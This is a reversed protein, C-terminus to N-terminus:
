RVSAARKRSIERSAATLEITERANERLVIRKALDFGRYFQPYEALGKDLGEWAAIFYSGPPVRSFAFSGDSESETTASFGNSTETSWITIPAAIKSGMADRVVGSVEAAGRAVTVDFKGGALTLTMPRHTVDEGNLRISKVFYQDSMEKLEVRFIGVPVAGKETQIVGEDDVSLFGGWWDSIVSALSLRFANSSARLDDPFRGQEDHVTGTFIEFREKLTVSVSELDHTFSLPQHAFAGRLAPSGEPKFNATGTIMYDGARLGNCEFSGDPDIRLSCGAPTENEAFRIQQYIGLQPHTIADFNVIRGRVRYTRDEQLRIRLGNIEAAAPVELLTASNIDKSEGYFTRVSIIDKPQEIAPSTPANISASIYYHGPLIGGLVFTGDARVPAIQRQEYRRYGGRFVPEWIGVWANAPTEGEPDTVFGRLIAQPTLELVIDNIPSGGLELTIGSGDGQAFGGHESFMYYEGFTVNWLSFRGRSDTSTVRYFEPGLERRSPPLIYVIADAVPGGTISNLVRGQLSPKSEPKGVVAQARCTLAGVAFAILFFRIM